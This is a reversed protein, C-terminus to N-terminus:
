EAPTEEATREVVNVTVQRIVQNSDWMNANTAIFTATYTGPKDYTYEYYDLRANIGKVATGRDPEVSTPDIQQSIAWVEVEDDRHDSQPQMLISTASVSFNREAESNVKVFSFGWDSSMDDLPLEEGTAQDVRNLVLDNIDIRPHNDYSANSGSGGAGTPHVPALYRFAFYFPKDCYESFDVASATAYGTPNAEIADPNPVPFPFEETVQDAQASVQKWTAAAIGEPTLDGSFDESVFIHIIPDKFDQRTTYRQVMEYSISLSAMPANTRHLNEYRNGDDGAWFTIYDPNGTFTFRMPEDVYVTEPITVGFSGASEVDDNCGTLLTGCLAFATLGGLAYKLKSKTM